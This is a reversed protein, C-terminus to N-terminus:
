VPKSNENTKAYAKPTTGTYQRFKQYFLSESHFGTLEAIRSVPLDEKRLLEAAVEVRYRSLYEFVTQGTYTKFVACLYNPHLHCKQSLDELTIKKYYRNHIYRMCIVVARNGPDPIPQENSIRQCYPMLTTCINMLASFRGIKFDKKYIRYKAIEKIQNHLNEYAPHEPTVVPPLLLRNEALPTVFEQSFFHEPSLAIAAPSFMVSLISADPSFALRSHVTNSPITYIDGTQFVTRVSGIQVTETGATVLVIETEKHYHSMCKMDEGAKIRYTAVPLDPTGIRRYVKRPEM